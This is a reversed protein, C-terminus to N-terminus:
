EARALARLPRHHPRNRIRKGAEGALAQAIHRERRLLDLRQQRLPQALATNRTIYFASFPEQLREGNITLSRPADPSTSAAIPTFQM